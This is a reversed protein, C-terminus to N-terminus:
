KYTAKLSLNQIELTFQSFDNQEIGFDIGGVYFQSYRDSTNCSTFATVSKGGITQPTCYKDIAKKIVDLIGTPVDLNGSSEESTFQIFSASSDASYNSPYVNSNSLCPNSYVGLMKAGLYVMPIGVGDFDMSYIPNCSFKGASNFLPTGFTIRETNDYGKHKLNIHLVGITESRGPRYCNQGTYRTNGSNVGPGCIYNFANKYDCKDAATYNWTPNAGSMSLPKYNRDSKCYINRDNNLSFINANIVRAKFRLRLDDLKDISPGDDPYVPFYSPNAKAATKQAARKSSYLTTKNTTPDYTSILQSFLLGPGGEHSSAYSYSPIKEGDQNRFEEVGNMSIGLTRNLASEITISKVASKGYAKSAFHSAGDDTIMLPSLNWNSAGQGLSWYNLSSLDSFTTALKNKVCYIERNQDSTPISTADTRLLCTKVFGPDVAQEPGGLSPLSAIDRSYTEVTKLKTDTKSYSDLQCALEFSQQNSIWCKSGFKFRATLDTPQNIITKISPTPLTIKKLGQTAVLYKINKCRLTYGAGTAKKVWCQPGGQDISKGLYAPTVLVGRYFGRDRLLEVETSANLQTSTALFLSLSSLLIFYNKLTTRNM